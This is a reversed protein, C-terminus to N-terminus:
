SCSVATISVVNDSGVDVIYCFCGRCCFWSYSVGVSLVSGVSCGAVGIDVVVLGSNYYGMVVLVSLM